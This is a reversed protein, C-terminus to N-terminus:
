LGVSGPNINPMNKTVHANVVQEVKKNRQKATVSLFQRYYGSQPHYLMNLLLKFKINNVFNNVRYYFSTSFLSFGVALKVLIM